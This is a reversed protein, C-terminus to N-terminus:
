HFFTRLNGARGQSTTPAWATQMQKIIGQVEKIASGLENMKASLSVIERLLMENSVEDGYTYQLDDVRAPDTRQAGALHNVVPTLESDEDVTAEPRQTDSAHEVTYNWSRKSSGGEADPDEDSSGLGHIRTPKKSLGQKPDMSM